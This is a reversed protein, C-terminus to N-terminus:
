LGEGGAYAHRLDRIVGPKGPMPLGRTRITRELKKIEDPMITCIKRGLGAAVQVSHAMAELMELLELARSCGEPSCIMVGHNRMLFANSYDIVGDFAEALRQSLPEEYRVYIVPGLEIVPEPLFPKSLIEEEVLSFGTLIPPHAHILAKVDPRKRLINIHIPTEGTPRRGSAAFLIEGEYVSPDVM